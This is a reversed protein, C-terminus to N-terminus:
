YRQRLRVVLFLMVFLLFVLINLWFVEDEDVLVIEDVYQQVLRFPIEGVAEM